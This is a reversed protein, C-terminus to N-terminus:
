LSYKWCAGITEPTPAFILASSNQRPNRASELRPWERVDDLNTFPVGGLM